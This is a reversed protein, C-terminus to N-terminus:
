NRNRWNVVLAFAFASFITLVGFGALAKWVTTLAEPAVITPDLLSM